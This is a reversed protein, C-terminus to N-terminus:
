RTLTARFTGSFVTTQDVGGAIKGSFSISTIEGASDKKMTGKADIYAIGTTQEGTMSSSFDGTGILLLSESRASTDTIISALTRFYGATKEDDSIFTVQRSISGDEFLEVKGTFTQTLNQFKINDHADPGLFTFRIPFSVPAKWLIGQAVFQGFAFPSTGVPVGPLPLVVKNSATDIVVVSSTGKVAVYLRTGDSNLSVGIPQNGVPITDIMTNTAPDIVAVYGSFNNAVYVRTGAPNVVVGYPGTGISLSTVEINTIVTNTATDIVSVADKATSGHNAVYLRTGAPNVAIGYPQVGVPIKKLVARTTTDIVSVSDEGSNTLYVLNGSPHVAVGFPISGSIVSGLVTNTVADIITVHGSITNAVYVRTGAPDVAIGMPAPPPPPLDNPTRIGAPNGKEDSSPSSSAPLVPITAVVTNSATDIVSVDNSIYNTVYVRTGAPSVAVGRPSSGVPITTVVTNTLIDLVSVNNSDANTIYAFPAALAAQFSAFFLLCVFVWFISKQIPTHMNLVERERIGSHSTM